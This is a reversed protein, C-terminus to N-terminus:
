FRSILTMPHSTFCVLTSSSSVKWRWGICRKRFRRWPQRKELSFLGLNELRENEPFISWDEPRKSKKQVKKQSKLKRRSTHCGSSRLPNWMYRGFTAGSNLHLTYLLMTMNASALLHMERARRDSIISRRSFGALRSVAFGARPKTELRAEQCSGPVDWSDVTFLNM